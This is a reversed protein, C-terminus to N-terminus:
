AGYGNYIIAELRRTAEIDIKVVVWGGAASGTYPLVEASRYGVVKVAAAFADAHPKQDFRAGSSGVLYWQKRYGRLLEYVDQFERPTGSAAATAALAAAPLTRGISARSVHLDNLKERDGEPIAEWLANAQKLLEAILAISPLAECPAALAEHLTEGSRVAEIAQGYRADSRPLAVWQLDDSESACGIDVLWITVDFPSRFVGIQGEFEPRGPHNTKGGAVSVGVPLSAGVAATIVAYEPTRNTYRPIDPSAEWELWQRGTERCAALIEEEAAELHSQAICQDVLERLKVETPPFLVRSKAVDVALAALSRSVANSHPARWVVRTAQNM